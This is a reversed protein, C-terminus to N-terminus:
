EHNEGGLLERYEDPHKSYYESLAAGVRKAAAKCQEPTLETVQKGNIFFKCTIQKRKM